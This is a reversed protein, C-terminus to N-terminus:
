FRVHCPKWSVPLLLVTSTFRKERCHSCEKTDTAWSLQTGFNPGLNKKLGWTQHSDVKAQSRRWFPGRFGLGFSEDAFSEDDSSASAKRLQRRRASKFSFNAQLSSTSGSSFGGPPCQSITQSMIIRWFFPTNEVSQTTNLLSDFLVFFLPKFIFEVTFAWPRNTKPLFFHGCSRCTGGSLDPQISGPRTVTGFPAKLFCWWDKCKFCCFIWIFNM